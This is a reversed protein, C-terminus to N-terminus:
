GNSAGEQQTEQLTPHEPPQACLAFHFRAGAGPKSEVWIRGGHREIIRKCIALGVGNGECDPGSDLRQFMHFIREQDDAAIGIGNDKVWFLHEAGTARYGVEIFPPQGNTFKLANAILNQFLESVRVRDCPLIPLHPQVNIVANKEKISYHLSDLVERLLENFDAQQFPYGHRTIRSLHLLDDVLRRMRQGSARIFTLYEKEADDLKDASEELFMHTLGEIGRLPEKLDHAVVYTFDDLERNAHRLKDNIDGVVTVQDEISRNTDALAANKDALAFYFLSFSLILVLGLGWTVIRAMAATGGGTSRPRVHLVWVSDGAAIPASRRPGSFDPPPESLLTAGTSDRLFVFPAHPADNRFLERAPRWLRFGAAIFKAPQSDKLPTVAIFGFDEGAM